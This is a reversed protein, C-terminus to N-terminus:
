ESQRMFEEIDIEEDDDSKSPVLMDKTAIFLSDEITQLLDTMSSEIIWRDTKNIGPTLNLQNRLIIIHNFLEKIKILEDKKIFGATRSLYGRLMKYWQEFDNNVACISLTDWYTKLHKYYELRGDYAPKHYVSKDNTSM